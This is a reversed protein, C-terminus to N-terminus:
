PRRAQDGQRQNAFPSKNQSKMLESKMSNKKRRKIATRDPKIRATEAKQPNLKWGCREGKIKM